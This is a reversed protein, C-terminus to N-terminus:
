THYVISFRINGSSALDNVTYSITSDSSKRCYAISGEVSIGTPLITAGFLGSVGYASVWNFNGTLPGGGGAFPLGGIGLEAASSGRSSITIDGKLTVLNGVKIYTGTQVTYTHTGVSINPTWTGEEYDDLLNAAGIGGLYVGGSLYLNKFRNSGEGLDTAGNSVGNATTRPLIADGFDFFRLGTDATGIILEDSGAGISGVTTGDKQLEIITGDTSKRNATIAGGSTVSTELGYTADISVGNVNNNAPRHQTTGVMVNESSDITIATADANDDIGTSTFTTFTGAAPTTGGIVSSDIVAGDLNIAVSTGTASFVADLSDLDNNLKTGWTDTSAGVEPKTLNLNTTFTDAM